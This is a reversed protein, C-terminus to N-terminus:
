DDVQALDGDSDYYFGLHYDATEETGAKLILDLNIYYQFWKTGDWVYTCLNEDVTYCDGLTGSAPLASVTAVSGKYDFGAVIAAIATTIASAVYDETAMDTTATAIASSMQSNTVFDAIATNLASETVFHAIANQLDTTSVLNRISNTVYTIMDSDSVFDAVATAIANNMEDSTVFDGTIEAIKKKLLAYTVVDM